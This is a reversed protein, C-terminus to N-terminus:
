PYYLSQPSFQGKQDSTQGVIVGQTSAFSSQKAQAGLPQHGQQKGKKEDTSMNVAESSKEQGQVEAPKEDKTSNVQQSAVMM